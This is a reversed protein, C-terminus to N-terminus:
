QRDPRLRGPGAEATHPFFAILKAYTDFGLEKSGEPPMEYAQVREFAGRWLEPSDKVQALEAFTELNLDGKQKDNGHCDYCHRKLIPVIQDRYEEEPGAHLAATGFLLCIALHIRM